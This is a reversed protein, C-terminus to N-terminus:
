PSLFSRIAAIGCVVLVVAGVPSINSPLESTLLFAGVGAVLLLLGALLPEAAPKSQNATATEALRTTATSAGDGAVLQVEQCHPCRIRKGTSEGKVKLLRGCGRCGFNITM